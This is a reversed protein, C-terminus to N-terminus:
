RGVLFDQPALQVEVWDGDVKAVLTGVVRGQHKGSVRLGLSENSLTLPEKATSSLVNGATDTTVTVKQTTTPLSSARQAQAGAITGAGVMLGMVFSLVVVFRRNRM